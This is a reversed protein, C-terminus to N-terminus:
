SQVKGPNKVRGPRPGGGLSIDCDRRSGRGPSQDRGPMTGKGLDGDLM